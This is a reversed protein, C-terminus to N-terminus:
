LKEVEMYLISYDKIAIIRYDPEADPGVYICVGDGERFMAGGVQFSQQGKANTLVAHRGSVNINRIYNLRQGYKEAQLKGGAPWHEGQFPVAAAYAVYTGGEGDKVTEAKRLSLSQIKSRKLRM